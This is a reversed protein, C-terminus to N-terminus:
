GAEATTAVCENTYTTATIGDYTNIVKNRYIGAHTANDWTAVTYDVSEAGSVDKFAKDTDDYKQWQYSLTGREVADVTIDFTHSQGATVEVTDPLDESVVPFDPFLIEVMDALANLNLETDAPHYGRAWVPRPNREAM